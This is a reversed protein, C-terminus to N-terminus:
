VAVALHYRTKKKGNAWLRDFFSSAEAAEYGCCAPPLGSRVAPPNTEDTLDRLGDIGAVAEALSRGYRKNDTVIALTGGPALLACSARLFAEDLLHSGDSDDSGGAWEPPEPHNICVAHVTRPAVRRSVIERADGVIVSVNPVGELLTRALINFGRDVRLEIAVFQTGPSAKAQACIWEGSGACVELVLRESPQDCLRCLRASGDFRKPAMAELQTRSLGSRRSAASLGFSEWLNRVLRPGLAGGDGGDGGDGGKDGDGDGGDGDGGDGDGGEGEGEGGRAARPTDVFSVVRRTLAGLVDTAEKQEAFAAVTAADLELEARRHRAFQEISAADIHSAGDRQVVPADPTQLATHLLALQERAAKWKGLLALARAASLHTTARAAPTLAVGNGDALAILSAIAKPRLAQGLLHGVAEIAASDPADGDAQSWWRQLTQEGLGVAGVRVCGRLLANYTRSNPRANAAGSEAQRVAAAAGDVDGADCLAKVLATYTVVNPAVGSERMERVAGAAEEPRGCRALCNVLNTWSHADPALGDDRAADFLERARKLKKRKACWALDENLSLLRRKREARDMGGGGGAAATAAAPAGGNGAAAAGGNELKRHKLKQKKAMRAEAVQATAAAAASEIQEIQKKVAGLSALVRKRVRQSLDAEDTLRASLTSRKSILEQLHLAQERGVATTPTTCSM